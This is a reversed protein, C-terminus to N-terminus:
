VAWCCPLPALAVLTLVLRLDPSPASSADPLYRVVSSITVGLLAIGIPRDLVAVAFPLLWLGYWPYPNPAALWAALVLWALGSGDRRQLARLGFVAAAACAALGLAIGLASALPDGLGAASVLRAGLAQLSFQPLYHGSAGVGARLGRLLPVNGVIALMLALALPLRGTRGLASRLSVLVLGIALGPAKVLSALGLLTAGGFTRGGVILVAGGLACALMLADNHGEAVTWLAMPNLAFAATGALRRQQARAGSAPLVAYVLPICALFAACAVLRFGLLTWGAGATQGLAVVLRAVVLFLPGYVCAPPVGEWQWRSLSGLVGPTPPVSLYPDLGRVAREGYDAYAYVDSSFIVPWALAAILALGATAVLAGVIRQPRRASTRLLARVAFLMGAAAVLVSLALVFWHLTGYDRWDDVVSLPQRLDDNIASPAAHMAIRAVVAGLTFALPVAAAGLVLPLLRRSM